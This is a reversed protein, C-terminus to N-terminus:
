RALHARKLHCGARKFVQSSCQFQSQSSEAVLKWQEAFSIQKAFDDVIIRFSHIEYHLIVLKITGHIQLFQANQRNRAVYLAPSLSIDRTINARAFDTYRRSSSTSCYRNRGRATFFSKVSKRGSQGVKENASTSM